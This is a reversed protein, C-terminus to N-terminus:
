VLVFMRGGTREGIYMRHNLEDFHVTYPNNLQYTPIVMDGLYTLTPSLLQVRNNDTDAVLVNDHMDVTLHRPHNLQGVGSGQSGGYSQIIHGSTDVICVRHQCGYHSVVFNGTSLQVCHRPHDISSDLSIERILSGLTTYEQIRGTNYLTTLVNYCKTVFLGYFTGSV